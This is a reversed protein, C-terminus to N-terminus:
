KSFINVNVEKEFTSIDRKLFKGRRDIKGNSVVDHPFRLVVEESKLLCGSIGHMRTIKYYVTHNVNDRRM